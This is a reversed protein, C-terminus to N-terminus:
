CNQKIKAWKSVEVRLLQLQKCFLQTGSYSGLFNYEKEIFVFETLVFLSLNTFFYLCILFVKLTPLKLVFFSMLLPLTFLPIASEFRRVFFISIVYNLFKLTSFFPM